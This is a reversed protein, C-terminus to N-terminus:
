AAMCLLDRPDPLDDACSVASSTLCCQVVSKAPVGQSFAESTRICSAWCRGGHLLARGFPQVAVSWALHLFCVTVMEMVSLFKLLSELKNSGHYDSSHRHTHPLAVACDTRRCALSRCPACRSIILSPGNPDSPCSQALWDQDPCGLQFTELTRHLPSVVFLAKRLGGLSQLEDRLKTAQLCIPSDRPSLAHVSHLLVIEQVGHAFGM